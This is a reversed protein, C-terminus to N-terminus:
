LKTLTFSQNTFPAGCCATCSGNIDDIVNITIQSDDNTTYNTVRDPDDVITINAVPSCRVTTNVPLALTARGCALSIVFDYPGNFGECSGPSYKAQFVRQTPSDGISVEVEVGNGIFSPRGGSCWINAGPSTLVYTGVLYDEPIPCIQILNATHIDEVISVNDFNAGTIRLQLRLRDGSEIGEDIGTLVLSTHLTNAPIIVTENFSYQEPQAADETGDPLAVVGINISRETESYTSVSIPIEISVESDIVVEVNSSVSEFKILTTGNEADYRAVDQEGCNTTFIAIIIIYIYKKM